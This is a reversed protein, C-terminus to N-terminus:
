PAEGPYVPTGAAIDYYDGKTGAHIHASTNLGSDGDLSGAFISVTDRGEVEWFLQSGCTGCFGRRVGPSSPYWRISDAGTIDIDAHAAATAAVHHGSTKRCQTCHCAVVDRLPGTVVYRVAGCLCSGTKSM